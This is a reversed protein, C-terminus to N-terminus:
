GSYDEGVAVTVPIAPDLNETAERLVEAKLLSAITNGLPEQGPQFFVTTKEYSSVAPEQAVIEYGSATLKQAVLTPKEDSVTGNLVQVAEGQGIVPSPSPEQTSVGPSGEAGGPAEPQGGPAEDAFVFRYIGFGVAAIAVVVLLYRFGAIVVARWFGPSEPASHKGM